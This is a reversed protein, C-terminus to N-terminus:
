NRPKRGDRTSGLKNNTGQMPRGNPGVRDHCDLVPYKGIRLLSFSIFSSSTEWPRFSTFVFTHMLTVARFCKGAQGVLEEGLSKSEFPVNDKRTKSGRKAIDRKLM